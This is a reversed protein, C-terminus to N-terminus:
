RQDRREETLPLQARVEFGGAAVQGATVSGGLARARETMGRIGSGSSRAHGTTAKGDDSVTLDLADGTNRIRVTVSTADVAHRVVNTLSEQLIRYAAADVPAPVTGPDGELTVALGANRTASILEPLRDLGAVPARTTTGRLVALTHRLDELASHSADKIALLARKAQDPDQDAIHSGVGAQVNIMALSHAVVDHVERAIALREQEARRRSSEAAENRAAALWAARARLATGVAVAATAGLLLALTYGPIETFGNGVLSLLVMSAFMAGGAVASRLVGRAFAYTALAMGPAIVSPGGPFGLAYYVLVAAASLILVTLPFRRRWALIVTGGVLLAVAVASVHHPQYTHWRQPGLTGGVVFMTLLVAVVTDVLPPVLRRSVV